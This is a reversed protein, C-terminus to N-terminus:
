LVVHAYSAPGLRSASPVSTDRSIGRSPGLSARLLDSSQGHVRGMLATIKSQDERLRVLENAAYARILRNRSRAAAGFHILFYNYDGIEHRVFGRDFHASAISAYRKQVRIHMASLQDSLPVNVQGAVKELRQRAQSHRDLLYNGLNRVAGTQARRAALRGMDQQQIEIQIAWALFARDANSLKEVGMAAHFTGLSLTIGLIIKCGGRMIQAIPHTM